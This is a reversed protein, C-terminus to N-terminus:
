PLFRCCATIWSWHSRSRVPLSCTLLRSSPSSPSSSSSSFGRRATQGVDAVAVDLAFFPDLDQAQVPLGFIRAFVKGLVVPFFGPHPNKM